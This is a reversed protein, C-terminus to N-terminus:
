KFKKITLKYRSTENESNMIESNQSIVVKFKNSKKTFDSFQFTEEVFVMEKIKTNQVSDIAKTKITEKFIKMSISSSSSSLNFLIHKASDSDFLYEKQNNASVIGEYNQVITDKGGAEAMMKDIDEQHLTDKLALIELETLKKEKHKKKDGCGVIISVLVFILMIFTSSKM